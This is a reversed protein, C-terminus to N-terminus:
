PEITPFLTLTGRSYVGIIVIEGNIPVIREYNAGSKLITLGDPEAYIRDGDELTASDSFYLEGALGINVAARIDIQEDTLSAQIKVIRQAPECEIYDMFVGPPFERSSQVETM